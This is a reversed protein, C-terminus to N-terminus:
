IGGTVGGVIAAIMATMVSIGVLVGFFSLVLVGVAKLPSEFGHAEDLSVVLAWLFWILFVLIALAPLVPLVMGLLSLGFLVIFAVAQLLTMAALVDDLAGQGGLVRGVWYLMFVILVAQGWRLLAFIIPSGSGPMTEFFMGLEPPRGPMATAAQMLISLILSTVISVLSLAIWLGQSPLRMAIIARVGARPKKLTGLFLPKLMTANM